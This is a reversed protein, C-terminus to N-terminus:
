QGVENCIVKKIKTQDINYLLDKEDSSLNYIFYANAIHEKKM